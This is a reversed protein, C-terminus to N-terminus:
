MIDSSIRYVDMQSIIGNGDYDLHSLDTPYVLGSLYQSIYIVDYMNIFNDGNPDTPTASVKSTVVAIGASMVVVASVAALIKKLKM